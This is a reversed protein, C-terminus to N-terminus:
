KYCHKEALTRSFITLQGVLFRSIFLYLNQFVSFFSLINGLFLTSIKTRCIGAIWYDEHDVFKRKTITLEYKLNHEATSHRRESRGIVSGRYRHHCFFNGAIAEKPSYVNGCTPPEGPYLFSKLQEKMSSFDPFRQSVTCSSCVRQDFNPLYLKHAGFM